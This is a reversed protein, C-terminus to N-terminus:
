EISTLKKEPPRQGARIMVSLQETFMSPAVIWDLKPPNGIVKLRAHELTAQEETPLVVGRISSLAIQKRVMVEAQDDTPSCDLMKATRIWTKGYAGVVRPAFM